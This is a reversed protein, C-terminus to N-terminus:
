LGCEPCYEDGWYVAGCFPCIIEYEEEYDDEFDMETWDTTM